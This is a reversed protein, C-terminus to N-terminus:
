ILEVIIIVIRSATIFHIGIGFVKEIARSTIELMEIHIKDGTSVSFLGNSSISCRTYLFRVRIKNHISNIIHRIKKIREFFQIVEVIVNPNNVSHRISILPFILFLFDFIYICSKIDKGQIYFRANKPIHLVACLNHMLHYGSLLETVTSIM